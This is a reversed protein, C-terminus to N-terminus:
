QFAERVHELRPPDHDLRVGVVDFRVQRYPLDAGVLLALALRRLRAQKRATVAALPGGFGGGRRTKVEVVVVEGADHDLAVVDLEGRLDGDAIRWNRAVVQLGFATLLECALQEGTAGTRATGTTPPDAPRPSTDM